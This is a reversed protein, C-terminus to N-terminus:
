NTKKIKEFLERLAEIDKIGPSLEFKSNVDIGV